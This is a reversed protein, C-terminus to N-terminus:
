TRVKNNLGMFVDGFSGSGIKEGLRWERAAIWSSAASQKSKRLGSVTFGNIYWRYYYMCMFTSGYVSQILVTSILFLCGDFFFIFAAATGAASATVSRRDDAVTGAGAGSTAASIARSKLSIAASQTM